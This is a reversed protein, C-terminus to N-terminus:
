LRFQSDTCILNGTRKWSMQVAHGPPSSPGFRNLRIGWLCGWNVDLENRWGLVVPLLIVGVPGLIFLFMCIGSQSFYRPLLNTFQRPPLTILVKPFAIKGCVGRFLSPPPSYPRWHIVGKMEWRKRRALSATYSPHRPSVYPPLPPPSVHESNAVRLVRYDAAQVNCVDGFLVARCFQTHIHTHKIM